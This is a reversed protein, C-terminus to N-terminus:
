MLSGNWLGGTIEYDSVVNVTNEVVETSGEFIPSPVNGATRRM